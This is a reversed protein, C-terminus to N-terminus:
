DSSIAKEDNKVKSGSILNYEVIKQFVPKKDEQLPAERSWLSIKWDDIELATTLIVFSDYIFGFLRRTTNTNSSFVSWEAVGNKKGWFLLGAEPSYDRIRKGGRIAALSWREITILSDLKIEKTPLKKEESLKYGIPKEDVPIDWFNGYKEERLEKDELPFSSIRIVNVTKESSSTVLYLALPLTDFFTNMLSGLPIDNKSFGSARLVLERRLGYRHWKNKDEHDGKIYFVKQPNNDILRMVLTLTELIFPSRDIVNGIFVIYYDPKIIKLSDDIIKQRKLEKLNRILSHFSGHINGFIIFSSNPKPKLKLVFRGTYSDRKQKTVTKQLLTAFDSATWAPKRLWLKTLIRDILGPLHKKHFTTYNPDLWDGMQLINDANPYEELKAAYKEISELRDFVVAYFTTDSCITFLLILIYRMKRTTM